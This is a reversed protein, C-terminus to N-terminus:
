RCTFQVILCVVFSSPDYDHLSLACPLTRPTCLPPSRLTVRLGHLGPSGYGHAKVESRVRHRFGLAAGGGGEEEEEVVVVRVMEVMGSAEGMPAICLHRLEPWSGGGIASSLHDLFLPQCGYLMLSTLQPAIGGRCLADMAIDSSLVLSLSRLERGKTRLLWDALAQEGSELCLYGELILDELAECAGSSLVSLDVIRAPGHRYCRRTVRLVRLGSGGKDVRVRMAEGLLAMVADVRRPDMLAFHLSNLKPCLGDALVGMLTGLAGYDEMGSCPSVELAQLSQGQGARMAEVVALIPEWTLIHLSNLYPRRHLMSAVRSNMHKVFVRHLLLLQSALIAWRRINFILALSEARGGYADMLWASTAMMQHMDNSSLFSAISDHAPDPLSQLFSLHPPPTGPIRRPAM